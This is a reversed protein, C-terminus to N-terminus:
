VPFGFVLVDNPRARFTPRVSRRCRSDTVEVSAGLPAALAGAVEQVITKTTRTPSFYVARVISSM